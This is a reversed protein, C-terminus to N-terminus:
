ANLLAREVPTVGHKQLFERVEYPSSERVFDDPSKGKPVKVIKCDHHNCSAAFHEAIEQGPSTMQGTAQNLKPEDNDALFLVRSRIGSFIKELKHFGKISVAVYGEEPTFDELAMAGIETEGVIVTSWPIRELKGENNRKILRNGNFLPLKDYSGKWKKYRKFLLDIVDEYGINTGNVINYDERIAEFIETRDNFLDNIYMDDRRTNVSQINGDFYNPIIYRQIPFSYRKGDRMTYYSTVDYKTDVTLHRPVIHDELIGRKIFYDKGLDVYEMLSDVWQTFKATMNPREISQYTIPKSVINGQALFEVANYFQLGQRRQVYKYIDGGGCGAMCNWFLPSASLSPTSDAHFPCSFMTTNRNRGRPSGLDQRIYDVVDFKMRLDDLEQRTYYHKRM